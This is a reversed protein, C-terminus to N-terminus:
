AAASTGDALRILMEPRLPYRRKRAATLLSQWKDAPVSNRTHWKHVTALKEGLDDALEQRSPWLELIDRYTKM